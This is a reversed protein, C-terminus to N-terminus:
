IIRKIFSPWDAARSCKNWDAFDFENGNKNITRYFSFFIRHLKKHIYMDLYDCVINKENILINKEFNKWIM